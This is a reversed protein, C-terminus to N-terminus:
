PRNGPLNAATKSLTEKGNERLKECTEGRSAISARIGGSAQRISAATGRPSYNSRM